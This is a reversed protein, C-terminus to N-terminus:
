YSQKWFHGKESTSCLYSSTTPLERKALGDIQGCHHLRLNDFDKLSYTNGPTAQQLLLRVELGVVCRKLMPAAPVLGSRTLWPPCVASPTGPSDAPSQPYACPHHPPVSTLALLARILSCASLLQPPIRTSLGGEAPFMSFLFISVAPYASM